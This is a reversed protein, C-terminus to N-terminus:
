GLQAPHQPEALVREVEVSPSAVGAGQRARAVPTRAVHKSRADAGREATSQDRGRWMLSAATGGDRRPTIQSSCNLRSGNAHM